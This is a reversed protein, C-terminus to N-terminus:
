RCSGRQWLVQVPLPAFALLLEQSLNSMSKQLRLAELRFTFKTHGDPLLARIKENNSMNAVARGNVGVTLTVGAAILSSERYILV